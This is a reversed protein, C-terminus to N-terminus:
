SVVEVCALVQFVKREEWDYIGTVSFLRTGYTIRTQQTVGSHHRITVLHSATSLVTGAVNRELDRATAPVISASVPSPVLATWTQTFGGDGDVVPTGPNELVIRHRLAGPNM